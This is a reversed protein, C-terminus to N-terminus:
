GFIFLFYIVQYLLVFDCFYWFFFLAFVLVFCSCLVFPVCMSICLCSGLVGVRYAVFFSCLGPVGMLGM